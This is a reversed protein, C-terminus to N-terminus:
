SRVNSKSICLCFINFLKGNEMLSPYLMEIITEINQIDEINYRVLIDLAAQSGRKYQYWLRVSDFGSQGTTEDSM